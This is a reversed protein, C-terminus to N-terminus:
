FVAGFVQAGQNWLDVLIEHFVQQSLCTNCGQGSTLFFPNFLFNNIPTAVHGGVTGPPQQRDCQGM